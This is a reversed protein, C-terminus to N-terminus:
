TGDSDTSNIFLDLGSQPINNKIFISGRHKKFSYIFGKKILIKKYKKFSTSFIIVGMKCEKFYSVAFDLLENITFTDGPDALLDCILGQSIDSKIKRLIIYGTIDGKKDRAIFIEYNIDPKIDVYKWNLYDMDRKVIFNFNKEIKDWFKNIEEDFRNVRKIALRNKDHKTQIFFDILCLISNLFKNRKKVFNNLIKIYIPVNFPKGNMKKYIKSAIKSSPYSMYIDFYAMRKKNLPKSFGKGRYKKKVLLNAGWGASYYKGKVKLKVPLLGAMGILEGGKRIIWLKKQGKNKPNEDFKWMLHKKLASVLKQKDSYLGPNRRNILRSIAGRSNIIMEAIKEYDQVAANIPLPSEM